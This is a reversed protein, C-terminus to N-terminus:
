GGMVTMTFTEVLAAALRVLTAVTEPPPSILIPFSLALSGVVTMARAGMWNQRNCHNPVVPSLPTAASVAMAVLSPMGFRSLYAKPRFGSTAVALGTVPSMLVPYRRRVTGLFGVAVSTVNRMSTVSLRVVSQVVLPVVM